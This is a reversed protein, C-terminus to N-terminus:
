PHLSRDLVRPPAPEASIMSADIETVNHHIKGRTTHAHHFHTHALAHTYGQSLTGGVTRLVRFIKMLRTDLVYIRM